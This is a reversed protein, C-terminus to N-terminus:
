PDFTMYIQAVTIVAGAQPQLQLVVTFNDNVEVQSNEPLPVLDYLPYFQAHSTTSIYIVIATM